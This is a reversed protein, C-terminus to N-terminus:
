NEYHREIILDATGAGDTIHKVQRVQENNITYTSDPPIFHTMTTFTTAGSASQFNTILAFGVWVSASKNHIVVRSYEVVSNGNAALNTTAITDATVHLAKDHTWTKWNAAGVFLLACAALGIVLVLKKKM